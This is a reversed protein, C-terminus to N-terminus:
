TKVNKLFISNTENGNAFPIDMVCISGAGSAVANLAVSHLEPLNFEWTHNQLLKWAQQSVRVYPRNVFQRVFHAILLGIDERRERLPPLYIHNKLRNYLEARFTGGNVLECLDRCSSAIISRPAGTGYDLALLITQLEDCATELQRLLITGRQSVRAAGSLLPRGGSTVLRENEEECLVLTLPASDAHRMEHLTRALLLKGTGEEGTILCPERTEALLAVQRRAERLAPCTGIIPSNSSSAIPLAVADRLESIRNEVVPLWRHLMAVGAQENGGSLDIECFIDRVMLSPPDGDLDDNILFFHADAQFHELQEARSCPTGQLTRSFFILQWKERLILELAQAVSTAAEMHWGFFGLQNSIIDLTHQRSNIVLASKPPEVPMNDPM